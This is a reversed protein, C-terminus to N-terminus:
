SPRESGHEARLAIEVDCNCEGGQLFPCDDDHLVDLEVLNGPTFPYTEIFEFLRVLYAPPKVNCRRPGHPQVVEQGEQDM